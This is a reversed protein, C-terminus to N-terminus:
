FTRSNIWFCRWPLYVALKKSRMSVMGASVGPTADLAAYAENIALIYWIPSAQCPKREM